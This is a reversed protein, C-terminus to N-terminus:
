PRNMATLGIFHASPVSMAMACRKSSSATSSANIPLKDSLHRRRQPPSPHIVVVICRLSGALSPPAHELTPEAICLKANMQRVDCRPLPCSRTM